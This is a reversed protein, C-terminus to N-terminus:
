RVMPVPRGFAVSPVRGYLNAKSAQGASVAATSGFESELHLHDLNRGSDSSLTIVASMLKQLVCEPRRNIGARAFVPVDWKGFALWTHDETKSFDIFNSIM